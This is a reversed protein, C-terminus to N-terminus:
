PYLTILSLLLLLPSPVQSILYLLSGTFIIIRFYGMDYLQGVPLGLFFVMCLQFSGIWSIQSATHEDLSIRQLDVYILQLVSSHVTRSHSATYYDQFVGFSQVVGFSCMCVMASIFSKDNLEGNFSDGILVYGGLVTLWARLGGEPYMIAPTTTDDESKPVETVASADRSPIKEESDSM